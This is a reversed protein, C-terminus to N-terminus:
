RDPARTFSTEVIARMIPTKTAVFVACYIGIAKKKTTPMPTELIGRRKKARPRLGMRNRMTSVTTTCINKVGPVGTQCNQNTRTVRSPNPSAPKMRQLNTKSVSTLTRSVALVEGM